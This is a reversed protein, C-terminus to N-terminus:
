LEKVLGKVLRKAFERRRSRRSQGSRIRDCVDPGSGGGAKTLGAFPHGVIRRV